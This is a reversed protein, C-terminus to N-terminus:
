KAMHCVVAVNKTKGFSVSGHHGGLKDAPATTWNVYHETTKGACIQSAGLTNEPTPRLTDAE